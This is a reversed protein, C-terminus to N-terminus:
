RKRERDAAPDASAPQEEDVLDGIAPAHGVVARRVHPELQGRLCVPAMSQRRFPTQTTWASSSSGLVGCVGPMFRAAAIVAARAPASFSHAPVTTMWGSALVPAWWWPGTSLTM